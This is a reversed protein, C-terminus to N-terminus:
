YFNNKYYYEFRGKTVSIDPQNNLSFYAEFTGSIYRNTPDFALINLYTVGKNNITSNLNGIECTNNTQDIIYNGENNFHKIKYVMNGSPLAITLSLSDTHYQVTLPDIALGQPITPEGNYVYFISDDGIENIKRPCQTMLFTGLVILLYKFKFM